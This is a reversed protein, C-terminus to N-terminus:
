RGLGYGHALVSVLLNCAAHFLLGAGIGGTRVRLWGFLLSPFFVALRSPYPLTLLHGVAFIASTVLVSPGLPVGLVRVRRPWVDDLSTQLYGRFFAEEPLAIVLLQNQLNDLFEPPLRFHFPGTHWYLRYGLFFPPFVVLGCLVAWGLARAADRAIRAPDLRTAEFLGGLALGHHRVTDEDGRLVLWWSAGLFGLGVGAGALKIPLYRSMLTVAVTVVAAALLPRRASPTPTMRRQGLVEGAGLAAAEGRGPRNANVM